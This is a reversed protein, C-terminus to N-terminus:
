EGEKAYRWAVITADECETWDIVLARQARLM